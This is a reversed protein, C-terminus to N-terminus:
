HKFSLFKKKVLGTLEVEFFLVIFIIFAPLVAAFPVWIPLQIESEYNNGMPNVFWSSRISKSPILM